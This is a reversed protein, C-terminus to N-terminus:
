VAVDKIVDIVVAIVDVAVLVVYVSSLDVDVNYLLSLSWCCRCRACGDHNRMVVVDDADDEM